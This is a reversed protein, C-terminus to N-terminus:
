ATRLLIMSAHGARRRQLHSASHADVGPRERPRARSAGGRGVWPTMRPSTGRSDPQTTFRHDYRTTVDATRSAPCLNSRFVGGGDDGGGRTPSPCPPSSRLSATRLSDEWLSRISAPFGGGGLGVGWPPPPAGEACVRQGTCCHARGSSGHDRSDPLFFEVTSCCRVHCGATGVRTSLQTRPGLGLIVSFTRGAGPRERLRHHPVAEGVWPTTRPSTGRRDPETKIRHDYCTTVDATRSAPCLNSPFVVGM